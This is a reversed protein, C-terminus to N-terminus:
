SRGVAWLNAADVWGEPEGFVAVNQWRRPVKEIVGGKYVKIVLDAFGRDDDSTTPTYKQEIEPSVTEPDARGNWEGARTGTANPAYVKIHKGIPLGLVPTSPPLILRFRIVDHSLYSMDGIVILQRQRKLFVNSSAPDIAAVASSAAAAAATRQYTTLARGTAPASGTLGSTPTSSTEIVAGKLEVESALNNTLVSLEHNQDFAEDAVTGRYKLLM